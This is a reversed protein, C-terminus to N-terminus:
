IAPEESVALKEFTARLAAMDDKIQQLNELSSFQALQALFEGNEQPQLPDQHQLQTVLLSLFVDRGMPDKKETAGTGDTAGNGAGTIADISM